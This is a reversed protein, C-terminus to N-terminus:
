MRRLTRMSSRRLPVYGGSSAETYYVTIRIHDVNPRNGGTTRCKVSVLVGDITAGSPIAFGFNTATLYATGSGGASVFAVAVGFGSANVNSDSLTTGWLSSAGGYNLYTFSTPLASTGAQNTGATLGSKILKCALEKFSSGSTKGTQSLTGDETAVNGTSTWGGGVANNGVDCSTYSFTGGSNPGESAM